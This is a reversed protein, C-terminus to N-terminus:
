FRFYLFPNYTGAVLFSICIILLIVCFIINIVPKSKEIREMLRKLAPTCCLISLIVLVLNSRLFYLFDGDAFGNTGSGFLNKIYEGMQSFDTNGFIAMGIVVLILTYIHKVVGPVNKFLPIFIFKELILLIGYYVGWCVFNWNAGHWLGTLAWVIMINIIQRVINVRSGGLPIYVYEKFWGALTMHWRRWFDTISKAIYPYNFNEPFEFGLMKGMGIAM